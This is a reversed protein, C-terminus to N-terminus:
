IQINRPYQTTDAILLEPARYHNILACTRSKRM